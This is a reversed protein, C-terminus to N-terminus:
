PQKMKLKLLEQHAKREILMRCFCKNVPNLKKFSAHQRIAISHMKEAAHNSPLPIFNFAHLSHIAVFLM